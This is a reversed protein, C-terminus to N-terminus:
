NYYTSKGKKDEIRDVTEQQRLRKTANYALTIEDKAQILDIYNSEYGALIM